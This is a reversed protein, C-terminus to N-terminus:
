SAKPDLNNRLAQYTRAIENVNEDTATLPDLSSLAEIEEQYLRITEDRLIPHAAAYHGFINDGQLLKINSRREEIEGVVREAM